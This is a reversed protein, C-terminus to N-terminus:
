FVAPEVGGGIGAEGVGVEGVPLGEEPVLEQWALQDVGVFAGGAGGDEAVGDGGRDADRGNADVLDVVLM